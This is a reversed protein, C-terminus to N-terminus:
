RRYDRGGRSATCSRRWQELVTRLHHATKPNKEAIDDTEGPNEVLDFLLFTEGRDLSILKYRNDVVSIQKGSEFCIPAPRSSMRGEILPQLSVGDHPEPGSEAPVNLVDLVTPFYDLTSAPMTVTRPGTIKSPWELLGPVHVGGDFLSRKRGRYPGASGQARKGIRELEPGNDSTFWFMTDSAVGLKRLEGRLRGVQEDMASVCGYFHRKEVPQGDYMDLYKKGAVVPLHPTHFWIVAFFPKGSSVAERMFRVARDMIVRSDDGDLNDEARIGPGTWYWTCYPEGPTKTGTGGADTEPTVMPDWTPVKAETSFCVDFGNDWPPSYHEVGDPGGRNSDPVTTTLTGLHWKGFHGTIYGRSKLVEALTLEEPPMHGVNASFVGYRYPHRGTLCSGRTPSCVPAGSYFRDFCLGRRAMDDLNPTRLAPHGNYGTDRWGLDDAMCLIVNPAATGAGSAAKAAGSCLLGFAGAGTRRIFARRNMLAKM